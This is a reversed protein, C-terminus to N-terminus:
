RRGLSTRLIGMASAYVTLAMDHKHRLEAARLMQDEISVTNGNPNQQDPADVLRWPGQEPRGNLHDPRTARMGDGGADHFAAVDQARYGPTDANAVNTAIVHQRAGSWAALNGALRLVELQGFM